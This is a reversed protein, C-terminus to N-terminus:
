NRMTLKHVLLNSLTRYEIMWVKFKAKLNFFENKGSSEQLLRNTATFNSCKLNNISVMAFLTDLGTKWSRPSKEVHREKEREREIVFYVCM